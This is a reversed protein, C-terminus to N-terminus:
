PTLPGQDQDSVYKLFILGLVVYKFEAPDMDSRLKNAAKWLTAEFGLPAPSPKKNATM